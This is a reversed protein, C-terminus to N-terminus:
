ISKQDIFSGNKNFNTNLEILFLTFKPSSIQKFGIDKKSLKQVYKNVKKIFTPKSVGLNVSQIVLKVFDGSKLDPIDKQLSSVLNQSIKIKLNELELIMDSNSVSM